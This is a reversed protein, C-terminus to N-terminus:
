SVSRNRRMPQWRLYTASRWLWEVPGFRYRELWWVSLMTELAFIFVTPVLLLAPGVQGFLGLGYSYFLLTGAVSQFLYNSLATRGVAAFPALRAHWRADRLLLLVGTIYGLSLAPVGIQQIVFVVWAAPTPAMPNIPVFWRIGVAAANALLGLVLGIRMWRAYSPIAAEPPEFLRRRWALMGFLFLGLLNTFFFAAFGWNYRVADTGRQRAIAAWDGEAYTQVIERLMEPAPEPPPSFLPGTFAQVVVFATMMLLPFLYAILAWVLITKDTRKRFFFLLFGTLAYPLLIDGWWILLGHALGIAALVLLRRSYIGAFRGGRAAARSMQVAFGVGFLLAFITIFKGQVFIDIAAQVLRDPLAPWMRSPEFYIAAPGAFGRANAAVIGFLALGRLVDIAEVREGSPIPGAPVALALTGDLDEPLGSSRDDLDSPLM